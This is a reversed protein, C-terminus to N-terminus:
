ERNSVLTENDEISVLIFKGRFVEKQKFYIFVGRYSEKAQDTACSGKCSRSGAYVPTKYKINAVGVLAVEADIM